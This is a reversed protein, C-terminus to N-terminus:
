CAPGLGANFLLLVVVIVARNLTYSPLVNLLKGSWWKYGGTQEPSDWVLKSSSNDPRKPWANKLGMWVTAQKWPAVSANDVHGNGHLDAAFYSIGTSDPRVPYIRTTLAFRDNVFIELLSKDFILTFKVDETTGNAFTYPAFYGTLTNTKFVGKLLTSNERLVRIQRAQADYIIKTYEANDPSQAIIIGAARQVPGLTATMMWSDGVHSFIKKPGTGPQLNGVNSTQQKAGSILQKVVDPLPRIGLTEATYANRADPIWENGDIYKHKQLGSSSPTLKVSGGRSTSIDGRSWVAWHKDPHLTTNGGETGMIAFWAQPGKGGGNRNTPLDFIGSTEFNYGYGGTIDPNGLSANPASEWVPGVFTWKTLDSAPATYLAIRSGLLGPRADDPFEDPVNPGKLGSGLTLYYHPGVGRIADLGPSPFVYPDRFGTVSWDKPPGDIIVGLEQWSRGADRSRFM